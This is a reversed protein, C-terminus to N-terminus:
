AQMDFTMLKCPLEAKVSTKWATCMRTHPQHQMDTHMRYSHSVASPSSTAPVTTHGRGVVAPKTSSVTCVLQAEIPTFLNHWECWVSVHCADPVPALRLELPM